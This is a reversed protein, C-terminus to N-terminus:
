GIGFRRTLIKEELIHFDSFKRLSLSEFDHRLFNNRCFLNKKKMLIRGVLSIPATNLVVLDVEDTGLCDNVKGLLDLKLDLFDSGEEFFVAIDIDSLPRPFGRAASGFLYAFEIRGFEKFLEPLKEIREFSEVPIPKNRIM